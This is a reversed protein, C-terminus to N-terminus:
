ITPVGDITVIDVGRPTSIMNPPVPWTVSLPFGEQSTINRLQTRYLAWAEKDFPSDIVMKSDTQFLLKNRLIRVTMAVDEIPPPPLIVEALTSPVVLALVQDENKAFIKENGKRSNTIYGKIMADLSEGIPYEDNVIPLSFSEVKNDFEISIIHNEFKVISYEM